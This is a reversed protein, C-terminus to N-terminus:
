LIQLYVSAHIRSSLKSIADAPVVLCTSSSVIVGYFVVIDIM